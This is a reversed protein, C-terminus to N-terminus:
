PDTVRHYAQREAIALICYVVEDITSRRSPNPSSSREAKTIWSDADYGDRLFRNKPYLCKGETAACHPLSMEKGSGLSFLCTAFFRASAKPVRLQGSLNLPRSAFEMTGLSGDDFAGLARALTPRFWPRTGVGGFQLV